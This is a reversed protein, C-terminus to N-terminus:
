AGAIGIRNAPKLSPQSNSVPDVITGASDCKEEPSSKPFCGRHLTFPSPTRNNSPNSILAEAFMNHGEIHWRNAIYHPAKRCELGRALYYHGGEASIKLIRRGYM